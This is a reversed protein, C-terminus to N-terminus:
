SVVEQSEKELEERQKNILEIARREFESASNFGQEKLRYNTVAAEILIGMSRGERVPLTLLPLNLDLIPYTSNSNDGIRYYDKNTDFKELQIVLQVDCTDLVTAGGFMKTVDIIGVGRIELMGKLLEPAHGVIRNNIRAVDVRDDAVLVHGRKILELAIESKGMGSEGLILVGKGYVSLLEGHIIDEPALKSDLYAIVDTMVRYTPMKTKFVPFNREEAVQKLVAPCERDNTLILMPTYGDMIMEFRNRQTAEDLTNIYAEEKNGILVVRRPETTDMFGSLELGPRNVDPIVVWRKLSEENGVIHEFNFYEYIEKVTVKEKFEM